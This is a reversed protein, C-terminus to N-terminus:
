LALTMCFQINLFQLNKLTEKKTLSDSNRAACRVLPHLQIVDIGGLAFSASKATDLVGLDLQSSLTLRRYSIM